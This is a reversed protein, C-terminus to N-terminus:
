SLEIKLQLQLIEQDVHQEQELTSNQNIIEIAKSIVTIAQQM